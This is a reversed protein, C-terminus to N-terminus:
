QKTKIPYWYGKTILEDEEQITLIDDYKAVM